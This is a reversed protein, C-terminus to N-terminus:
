WRRLYLRALDIIMAIVYGASLAYGLESSLRSAPWFAASQGREPRAAMAARCRGRVRAARHADPELIATRSQRELMMDLEDHTM